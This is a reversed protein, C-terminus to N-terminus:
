SQGRYRRLAARLRSIVPSDDGGTWADMTNAAHEAAEALADAAETRATWCKLCVPTLPDDRKCAHRIMDALSPQVAPAPKM